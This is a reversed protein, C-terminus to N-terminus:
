LEVEDKEQIRQPYTKGDVVSTAQALEALRASGETTLTIEAEYDGGSSDPAQHPYRISM